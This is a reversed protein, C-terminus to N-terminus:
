QIVAYLVIGTAVSVNLSSVSGRMPISVLQDCSDQTLKRMGRGEAGLVVAVPRRIDAETIAQSAADALGVTWIGRKQLEKMCRALNTVYFVNVSEGAGSAVRRVTENIPCAGDRPLVVADVGAGDATRLCAGLNHPDTVQDLLLLLPPHELADLLRYLEKDPKQAAMKAKLLVGQHNADVWKSLVKKGVRHCPIGQAELKTLLKQM